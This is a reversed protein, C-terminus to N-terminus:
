SYKFELGPLILLLTIKILLLFSVIKLSCDYIYHWKHPFRKLIQFEKVFVVECAGGATDKRTTSTKRVWDPNSLPSYNVLLGKLHIQDGVRTSAIAKRISENDTILHNNSLQDARFMEYIAQDNIQYHCSVPESHYQVKRYANTKVNDGWILCLDKTDVSDDTHYIDYWASINNHSVVLGSIEYNAVPDVLYTEDRYSFRFREERTVEQVPNSKLEEKIEGSHPL